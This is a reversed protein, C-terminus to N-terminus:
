AERSAAACAACTGFLEIVHEVDSFGHAAGTSTAWAEVPPGEVEVTTRCRRCVLHHHHARRGCLRYLVEGADTRVTDLEGGAHMAQIARYVTAIGVEHGERALREHLQQTTLFEPTEGLVTLLAERQRSRRQQTPM